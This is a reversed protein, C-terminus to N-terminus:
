PVTGGGTTAADHQVEVSRDGPAGPDDGAGVPQGGDPKFFRGVVPIDWWSEAKALATASALLHEASDYCAFRPVWDPDFKENYRWLSEIQMSDSM